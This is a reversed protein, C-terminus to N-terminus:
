TPYAVALPAGMAVVLERLPLAEGLAQRGLESYRLESVDAAVVMTEPVTTGVEVLWRRFQPLDTPM